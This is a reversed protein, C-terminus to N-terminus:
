QNQDCYNEREIAANKNGLQESKMFCKCAVEKNKYARAITGMWYYSEDVKYGLNVCNHFDNFSKKLSDIGLYALARQYFIESGKVDFDSENTFANPTSDFMIVEGGKSALAKNYYAVAKSNQNLRKFNNGTNFLALTNKSDLKLVNAYDSIAGEYDKIAVKDAGRSLYAEKFKPDKDIAKDLLKIAAKYQQKDELDWGEKLYEKPSKLDCGTILILLILTLKKM